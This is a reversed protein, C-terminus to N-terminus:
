LATQIHESWPQLSWVWGAGVARDAERELGREAQPPLLAGPGCGARILQSSHVEECVNSRPQRPLGPGSSRPHPTEGTPPSGTLLESTICQSNCRFTSELSHPAEEEEEKKEEDVEEEEEEEEEKEEDGAEEVEEEKDGEEEESGREMGKLGSTSVGGDSVCDDGCCDM